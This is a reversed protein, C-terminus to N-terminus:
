LSNWRSLDHTKFAGLNYTMVKAARAATCVMRERESRVELLPNVTGRNVDLRAPQGNLTCGFVSAMELLQSTTKM